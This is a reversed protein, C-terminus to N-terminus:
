GGEIKPPTPDVEVPEGFEVSEMDDVFEDWTVGPEIMGQARMSDWAVYGAWLSPAEDLGPWGERTRAMEWKVQAGGHAYVTVPDARSLLRVTIEPRKM